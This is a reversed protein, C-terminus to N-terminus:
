NRIREGLWKVIQLLNRQVILLFIMKKKKIKNIEQFLFSSFIVSVPKASQHIIGHDGPSKTGAVPKRVHESEVTEGFLNIYTRKGDISVVSNGESPSVIIDNAEAGYLKTQLIEQPEQNSLEVFDVVKSHGPGQIASLTVDFIEAYINSLTSSSQLVENPHISNFSSSIIPTHLHAAPKYDLTDDLVIGPRRSYFTPFETSEINQSPKSVKTPAITSKIHLDDTENTKFLEFSSSAAIKPTTVQPLQPTISSEHYDVKSTTKLIQTSSTTPTATAKPQEMSKSSEIHVMSKTPMTSSENNPPPVVKNVKEPHEAKRPPDKHLSEKHILEKHPPEWHSPPEKYAPEKHPPEKHPPDKYTPEKYTAPEKYTTPEKYTPEKYSPEKYPPELQLTPQIRKNVIEEQSEASTKNNFNDPIKSKEPARTGPPAAPPRYDQTPQVPPPNITPRAPLQLRNPNGNIPPRTRSGHWPPRNQQVQQPKNNQAQHLHENLPVGQSFQSRIPNEPLDFPYPIAPRRIGSPFTTTKQIDLNPFAPLDTIRPPGRNNIRSAYRRTTQPFQPIQANTQVNVNGNLLKVIGTIIDQIDANQGRDRPTDTHSQTSQEITSTPEISTSATTSDDAQTSGSTDIMSRPNRLFESLSETASSDSAEVSYYDLNDTSTPQIINTTDIEFANEESSEDSESSLRISKRINLDKEASSKGCNHIRSKEDSEYHVDNVNSGTFQCGIRQDVASNNKNSIFIFIHFLYM